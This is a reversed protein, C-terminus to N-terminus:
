KHSPTLSSLYLNTGSSRFLLTLSLISTCLATTASHYVRLTSTATPSLGTSTRSKEVAGYKFGEHGYVAPPM